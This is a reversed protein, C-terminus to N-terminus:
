SPSVTQKRDWRIRVIGHDGGDPVIYEFLTPQLMWVDQTFCLSARGSLRDLPIEFVLTDTGNVWEPGQEAVWKSMGPWDRGQRARVIREAIDSIDLVCCGYRQLLQPVEPHFCKNEPM